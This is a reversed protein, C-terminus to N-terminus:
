GRRAVRDVDLGGGQSGSVTAIRPADGWLRELGYFDRAEPQFVHIALDGYDLLVWEATDKGETRLPTRGREKLGAIVEEALTRVQRKSGGTAIVFLDVLGILSAVDLVVIDRARKGDLAAVVTDVLTGSPQDAVSIDSSQNHQTEVMDREVGTCGEESVPAFSIQVM